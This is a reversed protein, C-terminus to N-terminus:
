GEKEGKARFPEGSCNIMKKGGLCLTCGDYFCGRGREHLWNRSKERENAPFKLMATRAKHIAMWFVEDNDSVPVGYKKCYSEIKKRDMSLLAERRDKIFTVMKKEKDENV